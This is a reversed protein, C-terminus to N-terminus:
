CVPNGTGERDKGLGSPAVVNRLLVIISRWISGHYWCKYSVKRSAFSLEGDCRFGTGPMRSEVEEGVIPFVTVRRPPPAKGNYLRRRKNQSKHAARQAETRRRVTVGLWAFGTRLFSWTRTMSVIPRFDAPVTRPNRRTHRNGSTSPLPRPQLIIEWFYDGDAPPCEPSPRAMWIHM